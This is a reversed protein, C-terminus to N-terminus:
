SSLGFPELGWNKFARRQPAKEKRTLSRLAALACM